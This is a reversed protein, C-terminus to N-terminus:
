TELVHVEGAKSWSIAQGRKGPIGATVIVVNFWFQVLAYVGCYCLFLVYCIAKMKDYEYFM